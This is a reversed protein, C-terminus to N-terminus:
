GPLRWLQSLISMFGLFFATGFLQPYFANDIIEYGILGGFLTRFCVLFVLFAAGALLSLRRSLIIWAIVCYSGFVSLLALYQMGFLPSGLVTGALAAAVHFGPPYGLMVQLHQDATGPLSVSQTLFYALSYHWGIDVSQSYLRSGFEVIIFASCLCLLAVIVGLQRAKQGTM